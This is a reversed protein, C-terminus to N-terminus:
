LSVIPSCVSLLAMKFRFGPSTMSLPSSRSLRVTLRTNFTRSLSLPAAVGSPIHSSFLFSFHHNALLPSSPTRSDFHSRTAAVQATYHSKNDTRCYLSLYALPLLISPSRAFPRQDNTNFHLALRSPTHLLRCVAYFSLCPRDDKAKCWLSCIPPLPTSAHLLTHKQAETVPSSISQRCQASPLGTCHGRQHSSQMTGAHIHTHSLSPSLCTFTQFNAASFQRTTEDSSHFQEFSPVRKLSSGFLMPPGDRSDETGECIYFHEM